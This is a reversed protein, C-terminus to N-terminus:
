AEHEQIGQKKIHEDVMQRFDETSMGMLYAETILEKLREGIVRSAEEVSPPTNRLKAVRAQQGLRIVVIKQDRLVGYAHRVTHMNIGLSEALDRVSPLEDGQKLDGRIIQEKVQNAIQLYVPRPDQDNITLLM